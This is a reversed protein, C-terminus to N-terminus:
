KMLTMRRTLVQGSAELRCTYVGSPLGSGDFQVSHEGARLEGEALKAVERGLVDHVSLRAEARDPLTFRITTSPNFPNPYNQALTIKQAYVPDDVASIGAAQIKIYHGPSPGAKTTYLGDTAEVYWLCQHWAVAPVGAIQRIIDLLQGHSLTIRPEAGTNDAAISLGHTLSISDVISWTYSVNDSFLRAPDDRFMQIDTYPDVPVPREWTFQELFRAAQLTLIAHNPPTLLDYPTPAHSLIEYLDSEGRISPDAPAYVLIRQKPTPVERVIRSALLYNTEGTIFVEGTFINALGPMNDFEGPWRASFKTRITKDSINMFRDRPSVWIEYPRQHFVQDVFGPSTFVDVLYSTIDDALFDVPNTVQNLYTKTPTIELYVGTDARTHVLCIEAQGDRFLTNDISWENDGMKVLEQGNHTIRAWTFGDPDTNWSQRSSDTNAESNHLTITIPTGIQDWSRIVNGNEDRATLTWCVEEGVLYQTRTLMNVRDISIGGPDAVAREPTVTIFVATFALLLPLLLKM